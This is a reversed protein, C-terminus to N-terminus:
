AFALMVLSERTQGGTYHSLSREDHEGEGHHGCDPMM